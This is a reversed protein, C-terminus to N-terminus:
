PNLVKEASGCKGVIQSGRKHLECVQVSEGNVEVMLPLGDFAPDDVIRRGIEEGLKSSVPVFKIDPPLKGKVAEKLDQCAGCLKHTLVYYV